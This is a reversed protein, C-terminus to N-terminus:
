HFRKGTNEVSNVDNVDLVVLVTRDMFDPNRRAALEISILIFLSSIYRQKKIQSTGITPQTGEFSIQQLDDALESIQDPNRPPESLINPAVNSAPITTDDELTEIYNYSTTPQNPELLASLIADFASPDVEELEIANPTYANLSTEFDNNHSM